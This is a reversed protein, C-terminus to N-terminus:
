KQAEKAAPAAKTPPDPVTCRYRDAPTGASGAAYPRSTPDCIARRTM